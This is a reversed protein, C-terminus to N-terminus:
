IALERECRECLARWAPLESKGPKREGFFLCINEGTADFLEVSTVVGDTTPKRVLWAESVGPEHLHLNFGPDLINYWPGMTKVKHIAGTHIEIAGPNGVFVMIPLGSSAAEEVVNRYATPAVRLALDRPALRLAQIRSLGFKRLLPFFAHTDNLARWAAEFATADVDSPLPSPKPPTAVATFTPPQHTELSDVLARFAGENSHKELFIKHIAQGSADFVQISARPGRATPAYLAFATHWRRFFLRLDIDPGQVIGTDADGSVNQYTGTKEIVAHPNRTLATTPGVAELGSLLELWRPSLCTAGHETEPLGVHAAVLEGESVGLRAAADVQRLGPETARLQAYRAALATAAAPPPVPIASFSQQM